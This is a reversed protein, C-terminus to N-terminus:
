QETTIFFFPSEDNESLKKTPDYKLNKCTGIIKGKCEDCCNIMTVESFTKEESECSQSLKTCAVTKKEPNYVGVYGFKLEEFSSDNLNINENTITLSQTNFFLLHGITIVFIKKQM